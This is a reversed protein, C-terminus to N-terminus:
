KQKSTANQGKAQNSKTSKTSKTRAFDKRLFYYLTKLVVKIVENINSSFNM